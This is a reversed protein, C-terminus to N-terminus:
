EGTTDWQEFAFQMVFLFAVARVYWVILQHQQESTLAPTQVVELEATATFTVTVSAPIDRDDGSTRRFLWQRYAAVDCTASTALSQEM